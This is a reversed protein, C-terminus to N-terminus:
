SARGPAAPQSAEWAQGAAVACAPGGPRSVLLTWSGSPARLLEVLNGANDLGAAVPFEQFRRALIEHAQGRPLCPVENALLLAALAIAPM